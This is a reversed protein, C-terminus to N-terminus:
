AALREVPNGKLAKKYLRACSSDCYRKTSSGRIPLGCQWCYRQAELKSRLVHRYDQAVLSDVRDRYEQRELLDRDDERLLISASRVINYKPNERIIAIQEAREAAERSSFVQITIERIAHFWDAHDKHELIRRVTSNSIGVYLLRGAEDYHRYLETRELETV